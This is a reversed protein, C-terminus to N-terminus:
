DEDWGGIEKIDELMENLDEQSKDEKEFYKKLRLYIRSSITYPAVGLEVMDDDTLNDRPIPVDEKGCEGEIMLFDDENYPSYGDGEHEEDCLDAIDFHIDSGDSIMSTYMVNKYIKYDAFCYQELLEKVKEFNESNKIVFSSSSSNSVFGHRIKM